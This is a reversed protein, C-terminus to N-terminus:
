GEMKPECTDQILYEVVGVVFFKRFIRNLKRELQKTLNNVSLGCWWASGPVYLCRTYHFWNPEKLLKLLIMLMRKFSVKPKRFYLFLFGLFVESVIKWVSFFFREVFFACVVFSLRYLSKTPWLVGSLSTFLMRLFQWWSKSYGSALVYNKFSGLSSRLLHM